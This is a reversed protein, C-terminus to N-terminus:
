GQCSPDERIPGPFTSTHECGSPPDGVLWTILHTVPLFTMKPFDRPKDEMQIIINIFPVFGFLITYTSTCM